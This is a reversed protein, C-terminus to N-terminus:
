FAQLPQKLTLDKLESGLLPPRSRKVEQKRKSTWWLHLTQQHEVQDASGKGSSGQAEHGFVEGVPLVGVVTFVAVPQLEM